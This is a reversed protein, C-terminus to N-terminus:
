QTGAKLKDIKSALREHTQKGKTSTRINENRSKSQNLMLFLETTNTFSSASPVLCRSMPGLHMYEIGVLTWFYVYEVSDDYDYEYINM